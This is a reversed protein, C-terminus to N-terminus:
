RATAPVNNTGVLTQEAFAMYIYTTGSGNYDADSNRLKFGNSLFDINSVSSTTEANALNPRLDKDAPNFTNRADDFIHWNEGTSSSKMLVFAPKFGTYVFTGDTSGNGVYSGFKSFGKVEAFCYAIMSNGSGNTPTVTGLTFLTSNPSTNNWYSSATDPTGTGSLQSSATGGTTIHYVQWQTVASRNKVIIMKPTIGLGHGVTAGSTGNGTYSVISFGATTNASVTSSITGATNSVATTNSAKWNWSTYTRSGFNLEDNASTPNTLSFGDATFAMTNYGSSRSGTREADTNNSHLFKNAGRVADALHNFEADSRCKIWTFDPQFGVGSITQTVNNNGTYLKTNFYDTSKNITTYAM